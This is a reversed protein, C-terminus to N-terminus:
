AVSRLHRVPARPQSLARIPAFTAADDRLARRDVYVYVRM